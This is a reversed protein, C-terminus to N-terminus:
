QAGGTLPESFLVQPNNKLESLIAMRQEATTAEVYALTYVGRASPGDVIGLGSAQLLSAIERGPLDPLFVARIYDGEALNAPDTLTTFSPTEDNPWFMVGGLVLLLAAQAAVALHLPSALIDRLRALLLRPRSEAALQADIRANIRRMGPSPAAASLPRAVAAQLKELEGLERRCIVCSRAHGLVVEREGAALSDNVLWPLLEIAEEHSMSEVTSM